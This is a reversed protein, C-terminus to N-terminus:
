ILFIFIKKIIIYTRNKLHGVDFLMNIKEKLYIYFNSVFVLAVQHCARISRKALEANLGTNEFCTEFFM